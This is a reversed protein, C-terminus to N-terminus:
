DGLLTVEEETRIAVDKRLLFGDVEDSTLLRKLNPHGAFTLGLLEAAEREAFLAAPYVQWCSPAEGDYPVVTKVFVERMDSLCRLHHTVEIAEGTDTGFLDVLYDYGDAALARLAGDLNSAEVLCAVGYAEESVGIVRADAASLIDATANVDPRM